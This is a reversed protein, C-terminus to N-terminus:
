RSRLRILMTGIAKLEIYAAAIVISVNHKKVM